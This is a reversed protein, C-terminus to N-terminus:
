WNNRYSNYERHCRLSMLVILDVHMSFEDISSSMWNCVKIIWIIICHCLFWSFRTLVVFFFLFSTKLKNLWNSILYTDMMWKTHSEISSWLKSSNSPMQPLFLLIIFSCSQVYEDLSLYCDTMKCWILQIPLESQSCYVDVSCLWGLRSFLYISIICCVVFCYCLVFIHTHFIFNNWYLPFTWWVIRSRLAKSLRIM